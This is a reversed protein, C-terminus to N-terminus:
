PSITCVSLGRPGHIKEKVMMKLLRIEIIFLLAELQQSHLLSIKIHVMKSKVIPLILSHAFPLKPCVVQGLDFM